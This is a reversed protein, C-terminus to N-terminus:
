KTEGRAILLLGYKLIKIQMTSGAASGVAFGAASAEASGAYATFAAYRAAYRAAYGTYGTYGAAYAAFAAASHAASKNEASPNKICKKAAEIARRPRDDHPYQSEYEDIVQEAAYVAYSVYQRYDMVRVILWNAWRLKGDRILHKIVDIDDEGILKSRVAYGIGEPCANQKELFKKTIKM